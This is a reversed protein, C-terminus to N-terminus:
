ESSRGEVEELRRRMRTSQIWSLAIVAALLCLSIGYAALVADAYKGLDPM